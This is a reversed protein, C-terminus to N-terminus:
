KAGGQKPMVRLVVRKDGLYTAVARQLDSPSASEYRAVDQKLFGPDGKESEYANLLSARTRVTQLGSVFGSLILNRSRTLEAKPPGDKALDQLELGVESEIADLSVGPKALVDISFQSGLFGSSQNASVEQALQKGEVLRKYLRSAKGGGLVNSLLDLHADEPSLHKPTQWAFVVKPFQVNDTVTERVERELSTKSDTFDPAGPDVPVPAAPMSAFWKDVTQKAEKPSFDGAIVLSANSPVYYKAFFAKVDDVSAAELDEHSGIVPHHYPHKVGYLLEPLKLHVIGYPTNESRQRRENKVVARQTSLKELTMLPGIDRLRDAELWLFLPLLHSPGEDWYATRDESTWANNHGGEAEMTGDFAGTPVRRTGMFMLHEFLHAFGTRKPEEYRSGVKYSLEVVIVPLSHDEHFILTLGNPLREKTFPISLEVAAASFSVACGILALPVWRM